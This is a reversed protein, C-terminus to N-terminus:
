NSSETWTRGRNTSTTFDFGTDEEQREIRRRRISARAHAQFM